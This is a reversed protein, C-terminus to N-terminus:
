LGAPLNATFSRIQENVADAAEIQLFHGVDPVIHLEAGTVHKQVLDTWPTTMGDELSVRRLREDVGTSQLLLVPIDVGLLARQAETRDWRIMNLLIDRGFAPDWRQGRALVRERLLPDSDPVFMEAFVEALFASIGLDSIAEEIANADADLEGGLLSGDMLVLGDIGRRCQRYCELVVRCGMSHGILVAHGQGYHQKIECTARALFEITAVEPVFSAGHGPLDFTIVQSGGSFAEVQADWDRHDCGGGHVFILSPAGRGVREVHLRPNLAHADGRRSPTWLCDMEACMGSWVYRRASRNPLKTGVHLGKTSEQLRPGGLDVGHRGYDDVLLNTAAGDSSPGALREM